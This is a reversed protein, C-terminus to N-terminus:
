TGPQGEVGSHWFSARFGAKELLATLAPRSYYRIFYSAAMVRGDPFTLVRHGMDREKVQDFRCTEILHLGDPLEGEWRTDGLARIPGQPVDPASFVRGLYDCEAVTVDQPLFPLTSKLYLEGFFRAM